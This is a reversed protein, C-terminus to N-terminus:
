ENKSRREYSEAYAGSRFHLIPDDTLEIGKPVITPDFVIDEKPHIKNRIELRGINVKRRDEPWMDTADNPNDGEEALRIFLDFQVPGRKLRDDLEETLYNASISKSTLAPDKTEDVPVWEYKIAQREGDKNVFYFAHIPYYHLEAYSTPPQKAQEKIIQIVEKSHPYKKSVLEVMNIARDITKIGTKKDTFIEIMDIFERPSSTVFMPVTSSVLNTFSGDPLEFQVALGKAPVLYDVSAPNPPSNSFRATAPIAERHLHPAVTYPVANGNPLFTAEYMDGKAHARRAGPFKGQIQELADIAEKPTLDENHVQDM